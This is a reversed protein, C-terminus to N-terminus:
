GSAPVSRVLPNPQHPSRKRHNAGSRPRQAQPLRHHLAPRYLRRALTRPQRMEIAAHSRIGRQQPPQPTLRSDRGVSSVSTNTRARRACVHSVNGVLACDFPGDAEVEVVVVEDVVVVVATATVDVVGGAAAGDMDVVDVDVVDVVAAGAAVDVVTGAGVVVAAPGVVVTAVEVEVDVEVDVDVDVLEVVVGVDVIAGDVVVVRPTSM